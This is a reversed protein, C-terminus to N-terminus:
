VNSAGSIGGDAEYYLSNCKNFDIYHEACIFMDSKEIGDYIEGERNILDIDGLMEFYALSIVKSLVNTRSQILNTRIKNKLKFVERDSIAELSRQLTDKVEQVASDFLVGDSLKGEIVMLGPDKSGVVWADIYSFLQARKVLNKWLYAGEGEAFYDTVMDLIYYDKHIREPMPFGLYLASTPVNRVVKEERSVLQDPEPRSDMKKFGKSPINGFLEVVKKEVKEPDINGGIALIANNPCYYDYFKRIEEFQIDVIHQPTKGITPWQYHHEKYVMESMLHWVDGYPQNLCTEYFEEIVVNRQITFKEDTLRLQFMRDAEIALLLELNNAPAYSYYNTYDANTFANNEGGANQLLVDIDPVMDTGTFMMHEFLHTIGTKDPHENKSGINYLVNVAALTSDEDRHLIVKLGNQLEFRKYKVM